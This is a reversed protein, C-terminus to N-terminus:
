RVFIEWSARAMRAIIAEQEDLPAHSGAIFVAIAFRDGGPLTIIGADNVALRTGPAPVEFAQSTGTKHAVPTGPPVGARLRDPGTTSATMAALLAARSRASLITGRDLRALLEVVGDSTAADAPADIVRRVAAGLADPARPPCAAVAALSWGGQPPPRDGCYLAADRSLEPGAVEIGTVGLARLRATVAAGGGLMAVLKDGATNDSDRVMHELMSRLPPAREEGRWWAEAIPSVQRLEREAIPVRTGLRLRGADVEALVAVALPLKFVSMSPQPRDGRLSAGQGTRLHRVTVSVRGDSGAAIAALAAHLRAEVTAGPAPPPTVAPAGALAVIAALCPVSM